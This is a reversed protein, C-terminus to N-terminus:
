GLLLPLQDFLLMPPSFIPSLPFRSIYVITSSRRYSALNEFAPSPVSTVIEQSGVMLNCLALVRGLTPFAHAKIVDGKTAVICTRDGKPMAVFPAEHHARASHGEFALTNLLLEVMGSISIVLAPLRM